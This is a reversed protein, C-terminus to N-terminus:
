IFPKELNQVHESHAAWCTSTPWTSQILQWPATCIKRGHQPIRHNPRACHSPSGPRTGRVEQHKLDITHRWHWIWGAPVPLWIFQWTKWVPGSPRIRTISTAQIDVEFQPSSNSIRSAVLVVRSDFHSSGLSLFDCGGKNSYVLILIWWGYFRNLRMRRWAGRDVSVHTGTTSLSLRDQAIAVFVAVGIGAVWANATVNAKFLEPSLFNMVELFRIKPKPAKKKQYSLCILVILIPPHCLM